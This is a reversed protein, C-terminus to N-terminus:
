VLSCLIRSIKEIIPYQEDFPIKEKSPLHLFLVNPQHASFHSIALLTRYYTENCVFGGADDSWTVSDNGRLSNQIISVPSNSVIKSPAGPVVPGSEIIRGSNDPINMGFRNRAVMELRISESDDSYGLHLVASFGLEESIMGSVFNSGKEDVTLIVHEIEIGDLGRNSIELTIEQSVNEQFTSFPTFGTILIRPTAM